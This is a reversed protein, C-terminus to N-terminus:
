IREYVGMGLTTRGEAVNRMINTMRAQADAGMLIAPSLSSAATPLAPTPGQPFKAQLDSGTLWTHGAFGAATIAARVDDPSLLFSSAPDSAWPVPFHLPQNASGAMVDFLVFRGGPRLVRHIEAYLRPKDAINMAAHQTWVLDFSADPFPMDLASGHVFTVLDTLHTWATLAEGTRCFEETLDLVTVPCGFRTALYRAPGGVGGGVDLVRQDSTLDALRALEHTGAPGFSHFNDLPALQEVTVHAPDIGADRLAQEIAGTLNWSGYYASVLNEATSDSM